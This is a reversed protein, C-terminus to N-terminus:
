NHYPKHKIITWARYLQEALLLRIMEHTFTFDSFSLHLPFKAKLEPLVGYAGGIFFAVKGGGFDQKERLWSAFELSSFNKGQQDLLVPFFDNSLQKLLEVGEEKQAQLPDSKISSKLTIIDLKLQGTLRKQYEEIGDILYQHKTKGIQIVRIHM